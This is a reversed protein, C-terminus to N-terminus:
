ICKHMTLQLKTQKLMSPCLLATQVQQKNLYELSVSLRRIHCKFYQLQCTLKCLYYSVFNYFQLSWTSLNWFILAMARDTFVAIVEVLLLAPVELAIARVTLVCQCFSYMLHLTKFFCWLISIILLGKEKEDSHKNKIEKTATDSDSM